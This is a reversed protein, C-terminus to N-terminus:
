AGWTTLHVVGEGPGRRAQPPNRLKTVDLEIMALQPADLGPESPRGDAVVIRIGWGAHGAIKMRFPANFTLDATLKAGIKQGVATIFMFWKSATADDPVSIVALSGPKRFVWWFVGLLLARELPEESRIAVGGGGRVASVHDLVERQEPSMSVQHGYFKGCDDLFPGMAHEIRDTQMDSVLRGLNALVTRRRM